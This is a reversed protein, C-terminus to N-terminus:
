LIGDRVVQVEADLVLRLAEADSTHRENMLDIIEQTQEPRELFLEVLGMDDIGLTGGDGRTHEDLLIEDELEETGVELIGWTANILTAAKQQDEDSATLLNYPFSVEPAYHNLGSHLRRQQCYSLAGGRVMSWELDMEGELRAIFLVSGAESSTINNHMASLLIDEYGHGPNDLISEYYASLVDDDLRGIRSELEFETIAVDYQEEAYGEYTSHVARIIFDVQKKRENLSASMPAPLPKGGKPEWADDRVYKTVMVGNKNMRKQPILTNKM